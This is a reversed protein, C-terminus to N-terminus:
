EPYRYRRGDDLRLRHFDDTGAGASGADQHLGILARYFQASLPEVTGKTQQRARRWGSNRGQDM